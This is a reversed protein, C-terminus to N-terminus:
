MGLGALKPYENHRIRLWVRCSYARSDTNVTLVHTRMACSMLLANASTNTWHQWIVEAPRREPSASPLLTLSIRVSWIENLRTEDRQLKSKHVSLWFGWFHWLANIDFTLSLNTDKPLPSHCQLFCSAARM